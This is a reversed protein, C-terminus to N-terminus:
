ADDHWREADTAVAIQLQHLWSVNLICADKACTDLTPIPKAYCWRCVVECHRTQGLVGGPMVMGQELSENGTAVYEVMYVMTSYQFGATRVRMPLYKVLRDPAQGTIISGDRTQTLYRVPAAQVSVWQSGALRYQGHLPGGMCLWENM